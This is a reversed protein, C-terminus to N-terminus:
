GDEQVELEELTKRASIYREKMKQATASDGENLAKQWAARLDDCEHQWYWLQRFRAFM